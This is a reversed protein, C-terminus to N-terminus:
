APSPSRSRRARDAEQRLAHRARRRHRVERSLRRASLALDLRRPVAPRRFAAAQAQRRRRPHRLHRDGRRPQIEAIAHTTSPRRSARRRPDIAMGTPQRRSRLLIPTTSTSTTSSARRATAASDSSTSRATSGPRMSCRRLERRAGDTMQKEICDAGLSAGHRARLAAGRLDFRRARRRRRRLVVLQRGAGHLRVYPRGLGQGRHRHGEDLHRLAGSANGDIM